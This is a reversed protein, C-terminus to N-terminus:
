YMTITDRNQGASNKPLCRAKSTYKNSSILTGCLPHSQADYGLTAHACKMFIFSITVTKCQPEMM